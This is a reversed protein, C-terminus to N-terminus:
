LHITSINKFFWFNHKNKNQRHTTGVYTHAGCTHLRKLYTERTSRLFFTETEKRRAKRSTALAKDNKSRRVKAEM